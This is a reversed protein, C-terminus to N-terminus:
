YHPPPRDNPADTGVQSERLRQDLRAIQALAQDLKSWQAILAANLDEIVADQYAARIELTDLRAEVGQQSTESRNIM